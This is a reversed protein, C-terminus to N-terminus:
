SGVLEGGGAKEDRGAALAAWDPPNPRSSARLPETLSPSM